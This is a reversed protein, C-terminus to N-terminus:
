RSPESLWHQPNELGSDSTASTGFAVRFREHEPISDLEKQKAAQKVLLDLSASQKDLAELKAIVEPVENGDKIAQPLLDKIANHCANRQAAFDPIDNRYGSGLLSLVLLIFSTKPKM